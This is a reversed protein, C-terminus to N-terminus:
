FAASPIPPPPPLALEDKKWNKNKDFKGGKNNDDRPPYLITLQAQVRQAEGQLKQLSYAGTDRHVTLAERCKFPLGGLFADKLTQEDATTWYYKAKIQNFATVYKSVEFKECRLAQLESLVVNRDM